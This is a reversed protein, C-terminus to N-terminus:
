GQQIIDYRRVERTAVCGAYHILTKRSLWAPLVEEIDRGAFDASQGLAGLREIAAPNETEIVFRATGDPKKAVRVLLIGDRAHQFLLHEFADRTIAPMATFPMVM